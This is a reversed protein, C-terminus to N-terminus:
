LPGLDLLFGIYKLCRAFTLTTWTHPPSPFTSLQLSAPGPGTPQPDQYFFCADSRLCPHRWWHDAWWSHSLWEPSLNGGRSLLRLGWGGRLYLASTWFDIKYFIYAKGIGWWRFVWSFDCLPECPLPMTSKCANKRQRLIDKDGRWEQLIIKGSISNATSLNKREARSFYTRSREPRWTESSFDKAMQIPTRQCSLAKQNGKLQKEDNKTKLLKIM